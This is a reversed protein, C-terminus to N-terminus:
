VLVHRKLRYILFCLFILLEFFNLFLTQSENSIDGYAAGPPLPMNPDGWFDLGAYPYDDISIIQRQWWPFFDAPYPNSVRGGGLRHM